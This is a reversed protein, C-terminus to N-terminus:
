VNLMIAAGSYSSCCHPCGSVKVCPSPVLGASPWMAAATTLFRCDGVILFESSFVRLWRNCDVEEKPLSAVWEQVGTMSDCKWLHFGNCGAPDDSGHSTM